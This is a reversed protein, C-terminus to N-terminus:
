QSVSHQGTELHSVQPDPEAQINDEQSHTSAAYLSGIRIQLWERMVHFSEWDIPQQEATISDGCHNSGTNTTKQRPAFSPCQGGHVAHEECYNGDQLKKRQLLQWGTTAM